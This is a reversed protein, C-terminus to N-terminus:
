DPVDSHMLLWGGVTLTHSVMLVCVGAQGLGQHRFAANAICPEVQHLPLPSKALLPTRKSFKCCSLPLLM